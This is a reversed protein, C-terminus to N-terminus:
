TTEPPTWYGYVCRTASRSPNYTDHMVHDIVAVLHRSVCALIRGAPLEDKRLHVRCGKGIQMTPHWKWGLQTLYRTRTAKSVGTRANSRTRRTGPRELRALDNLDDYVRQYPLGTAIAIARTVCDGTKGTYGAASRGGDDYKFGLRTADHIVRLSDLLSHPAPLDEKM